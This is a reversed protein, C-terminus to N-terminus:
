APQTGAWARWDATLRVAEGDIGEVWRYDGTAYFGTGKGRGLNLHVHGETGPVLRYVHIAEDHTPADELQDLVDKKEGVVVARLYAPTRSVMYTGRAPGDLLRIM